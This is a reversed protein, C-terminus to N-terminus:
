VVSKRDAFNFGDYSLVQKPFAFMTYIANAKGAYDYCEAISHLVGVRDTFIYFLGNPLGNINSTPQLSLNGIIDSVGVAYWMTSPGIQTTSTNSNKVFDGLEVNEPLTHNGVTDNNTHEREVFSPRFSFDFMYTQIPDIEFVIDTVGKLGNESVSVFECRKIFAYFWKSSFATNQWMIYNYQRVTDIPAPCRFTRNEMQYSCNTYTKGIVSNFYDQQAQKTGFWLTNKLDDEMPVNLLYIKSINSAM